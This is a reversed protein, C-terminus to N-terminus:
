GLEGAAEGKEWKVEKDGMTVKQIQINESDLVVTKLNPVLSKM